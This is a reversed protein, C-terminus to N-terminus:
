YVEGLSEVREVQRKKEGYLTAVTARLRHAVSEDISEALGRHEIDELFFSYFDRMTTLIDRLIAMKQLTFMEDFVNSFRDEHTERLPDSGLFRLCETILSKHYHTDRIFEYLMKRRNLDEEAMFLKLLNQSISEELRMSNHLLGVVVEGNLKEGAM